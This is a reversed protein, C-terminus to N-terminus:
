LVATGSLSSHPLPCVVQPNPVDEDSLELSEFRNTDEKKRAFDVLDRCAQNHNDKHIGVGIEAWPLSSIRRFVIGPLRYSYTSIPALAVGFGAAVLSVLTYMEGVEQAITPYFGADNMIHLIFDHYGPAHTRSYVVFPSRKLDNLKLDKKYALPHHKPLLVVMSERHVSAVEICKPAILPLRFFGVDLQGDELMRVQDVTLVNKLSLEIEPHAMRYNSILPSLINATAATSIFGIRLLGVRGQAARRAREAAYQVRNVLDRAECRFIAGVYTLATAQRSREFLQVGLADELSQIQMTLAPQSLGMQKAARHFSLNDAVALFIRLARLEM